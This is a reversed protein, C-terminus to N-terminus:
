LRVKYYDLNKERKTYIKDFADHSDPLSRNIETSRNTFRNIREGRQFDIPRNHLSFHYNM